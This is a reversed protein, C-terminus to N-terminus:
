ILYDKNLFKVYDTYHVPSVKNILGSSITDNNLILSVKNSISTNSRACVKYKIKLNGDKSIPAKYRQKFTIPNQTFNEGVWERGSKIFNVFEKEHHNVKTYDYITVSPNLVSNTSINKRIQNSSTFFVYNTDSYLNIERKFYKDTEDYHEHGNAEAYFFIKSGPGFINGSSGTIKSPVESLDAPRKNGVKFDLMRSSNSYFGLNQNPM